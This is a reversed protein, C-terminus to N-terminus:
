TFNQSLILVDLKGHQFLAILIFKHINNCYAGVRYTELGVILLKATLNVVALKSLFSFSLQSSIKILFNQGRAVVECLRRLNLM